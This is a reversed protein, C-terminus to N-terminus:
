SDVASLLAFDRVKAIDFARGANRQEVLLRCFVFLGNSRFTHGVPAFTSDPMPALDNHMVLLLDSNSILYEAGTGVPQFPCELKRWVDLNVDLATRVQCSVRHAVPAGHRNPESTLRRRAHFQKATAM